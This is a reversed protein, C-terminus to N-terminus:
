KWSDQGKAAEGRFIRKMKARDVDINVFLEKLNEQPYIENMERPKKDEFVNPAYWKSGFAVYSMLIPLADWGKETLNWRVLRPNKDNQVKLIMGSTELEQLRTSLMRPTIGPISKMLDSFRETKRMAIDRLVLMAWKRGLVGLSTAIPCDCFEVTPVIPDGKTWVSPSDPEASKTTM